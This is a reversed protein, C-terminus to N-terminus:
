ERACPPALKPLDLSVSYVNFFDFAAFVVFRERRDVWADGEFRDTNVPAPLRGAM